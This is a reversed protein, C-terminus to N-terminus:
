KIPTPLRGQFGDCNHIVILGMVLLAVIVVLLIYRRRQDIKDDDKKLWAKKYL